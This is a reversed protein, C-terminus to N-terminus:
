EDTELGMYKMLLIVISEPSLEQIKSKEVKMLKKSLDDKCMEIYNQTHQNNDDAYKVNFNYMLNVAVEITRICQDLKNQNFLKIAHNKLKEFDYNVQELTIRKNIM